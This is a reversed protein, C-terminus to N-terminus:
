AAHSVSTPKFLKEAMAEAVEVTSRGQEDSRVFIERLTEGIRAIHARSQDTTGSAQHHIEIIGGANIVFDPAYLTGRRRLLEGHEFKALQNNAAGAVIPAALKSITKQNLVAGMACPSFVDASLSLISDPDTVQAGLEVARDLNQQNVDAVTVRAGEQMLLGILYRGVSGAGQVAIHRDAVSADGTKYDLAAKIGCFVGFATLPSPDGGFSQSEDIGSVWQTQRQMVRLDEVGTGSDEATIYKGQQADVFRGMAELLAESKQTHPNGIIVAKGGGMPLGALASKYTMGRSLRLVDILADDDSAYPFMRCGGVAPGLVTNHVAIIARLGSSADETFAVFEHNEMLASQFKFM